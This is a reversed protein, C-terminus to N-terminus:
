RPASGRLWGELKPQIAWSFLVRVPPSCLVLTLVVSGVGVLAIGLHTHLVPLDYLGWWEAGKAVFGHLLYAFMSAAGFSTIVPLRRTPVLAIVAAIVVITVALQALKIGAFVPYSVDLSEYGRRWYVWEVSAYPALVYALYIAGAVVPVAVIRAWTTRLKVFHEHRLSLGLVFFPLYQLLRGLEFTGTLEKSGAALMVVVAIVLPFRVVRWLPASLRWFFLTMLFWTVWWPDQLAFNLHQGDGFYRFLTFASEILLYPVVVSRVLGRAQRPSAAFHKSFYGSLMVFIPMHVTYLFLYVGQLAHSWALMPGWLHGAVVLLIGVFKVNDLHPDRGDPSVLPRPQVTEAAPAGDGRAVEAQRREAAPTEAEVTDAPEAPETEEAEASEDTVESSRETIQDTM